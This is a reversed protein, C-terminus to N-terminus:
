EGVRSAGAAGRPGTGRHPPLEPGRRHAAGAELVRDRGILLGIRIAYGRAIAHIPCSSRPSCRRERWSRLSFPFLALIKKYKKGPARETGRATKARVGNGAIKRCRHLFRRM